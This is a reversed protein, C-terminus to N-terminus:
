NEQTLNRETFKGLEGLKQFHIAKNNLIYKDKQIKTTNTTHEQIWGTLAKNYM